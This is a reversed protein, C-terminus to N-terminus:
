RFIPTTGQGYNLFLRHNLSIPRYFRVTGPNVTKIKPLYDKIREHYVLDNGFIGSQHTIEINFVSFFPQGAARNRGTHQKRHSM